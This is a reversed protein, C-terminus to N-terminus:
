AGSVPAKEAHLNKGGPHPVLIHIPGSSWVERVRLRRVFEDSPKRGICIVAQATSEFTRGLPELVSDVDVHEMQFPAEIANKLFMWLPYEGSDGGTVLALRIWGARAIMGSAKRYHVELEPRSALYQELRPRNLISGKGVLPRTANGLVYPTSTLGLLLVTTHLLWRPWSAAAFGFLPAMLVFVPLQLRSLWPNWKVVLCFIVFSASVLTLYRRAAPHRLRTLRFAVILLLALHLPNPAHDEHRLVLRLDRAWESAGRGPATDLDFPFGLFSTDPDDASIGLLHHFRRVGNEVWTNWAPWPIAAHLALGRVINSLLVRPAMVGNIQSRVPGIPNRTLLTNRAWHGTNLLVVGTAVIALPGLARRGDRRLHIWLLWALFPAAYLSAISKTLLGLGLSVGIAASNWKHLGNRASQLVWYALSALWFANVLDNQTSTAQLIGMPLTVVFLATVAQGRNGAGLERAILSTAVISGVMASWQAINALRDNGMLLNLHLILFEAGPTWILQRPINTPYHELSRNQMWHVVRAMHYTMSDWNNPPAVIATVWLAGLILVITAAITISFLRDPTAFALGPIAQRIRRCAFIAMALCLGWAAALYSASLLRALSLLETIWVLVVGCILASILVAERWVPRESDRSLKKASWFTVVAFTAIPLLALM